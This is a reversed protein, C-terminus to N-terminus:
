VLGFRNTVIGTKKEPAECSNMFSWQSMLKISRVVVEVVVVVVVVVVVM